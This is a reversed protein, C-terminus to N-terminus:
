KSKPKPPQDDISQLEEFIEGEKEGQIFNEIDEEQKRLDRFAKNKEQNIKILYTDVIHNIKEQEKRDLEALYNKEEILIKYAQLKKDTPLKLIKKVFIQAHDLDMRRITESQRLLKEFEQDTFQTQTQKPKPPM